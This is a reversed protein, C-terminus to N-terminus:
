IRFFARATCTTEAAVEAAPKGISQAVVELVYPLYAPENRRDSPAPKITRPLLYPADTEVMLRGPPIERVLERLHLGRREDCIWGTIGIHLDLDLYAALEHREGTFCHVVADALRDRYRKLLALLDRHAERDHVFVPLQLRTALELQAEFASLQADRPSLNRHFDLGCEGLARVAPHSALARLEGVTSHTFSKAEHPHVGATAYLTPAREAALTVAAESSEVSAGTVVITAIGAAQARQIVQEFDQRFSGHTLNAGIDVLELKGQPEM